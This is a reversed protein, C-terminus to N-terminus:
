GGQRFLGGVGGREVAHALGVAAHAGGIPQQAPLPLIAEAGAGVLGPGDAGRLGRQGGGGGQLGASLSLDREHVHRGPDVLFRQSAPPPDADAADSGRRRRMSTEAAQERDGLIYKGLRSQRKVSQYIVM